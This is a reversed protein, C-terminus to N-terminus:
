KRYETIIRIFEKYGIEEIGIIHYTKSDYLVRATEDFDSRYRITWSVRNFVTNQDAELDEAARIQKKKAWSTGLLAFSEVEEGYDNAALTRTHIEILRDM